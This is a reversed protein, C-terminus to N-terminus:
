AVSTAVVEAFSGQAVLHGERLMLVNDFYQITSHRHAIVVLTRSDRLREIMEIILGETKYDLASTAEDMVLVDPNHYLARAIGIRQLQGGSLRVGREGVTSDLGNPLTEVFELLQASKLAARIRDDDIEEDPLGFAVNRRISDDTLFIQQPIYGIQRQWSGVDQHIDRGDVLVHGSQPQLLGLLVDAATTKGAGSPGVLAVASGKPIRFSLDHLAATPSDPYRYTVGVFEIADTFQQPRTKLNESCERPSELSTLDAVVADLAPSGWRVSMVAIVIRNASPMMRVSALALLTLTPVIDHMPRHQMVLFAAAGLLALVAVTELFLRPVENVTSKYVGSRSYAVASEDFARQAYELRNLVKLEKVGGFGENTAQIMRMRYIHEDQGFRNVSRRVMKLFLVSSTGLIGFVLLTMAPELALLLVCIALLVLIEMGIRIAPILVDGVIRMVEVNINHVLGATNRQLHFTYPSNMYAANLRKAFDIQRHYSFRAQMYGFASLYANKLIFFAALVGAAWLVRTDPRNAGVAAFFRAVSAYRLVREPGSLLAVFAPLVGVGAVELLAGTIMAGLLLFSNRRQKRDLLKWLKQIPKM